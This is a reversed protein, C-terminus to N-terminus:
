PSDGSPPSDTAVPPQLEGGAMAAELFATDYDGAVFRPHALVARHLDITTPVGRVVMAALAADMRAIAQTRDAGHAIVKAIMSDYHPSVRDGQALHTDVRIGEGEPLRLTTLPGPTPRFGQAVEEANIRCEIAHGGVPASLLDAPLDQNAAIRLQWEVLDLGTVLETVTHEVQLRTNMEMFWLQGTEDLLMEITGAGRYRLGTVARQVTEFIAARQAPTVVPSPTEEILKQHRRQVSCEREGLVLARQGDALIQLEIHRGREILREMYMRGDGFAGIAEASAEAFAPGVQDLAHVRRMGRGGGGAVAKLLVPLGIREAERRAAAVDALAGDTGPVPAVGLAAMTRRAEAKDAMRRMSASSPGIFTIRAAECMAAFTPNESLFGWGPHVASCRQAEAAAVLAVPDLYARRDGLGVVADAQRLYSLDADADTAVAVVQVGLRKCTRIVRAAVEGRNAVLIRRFVSVECSPSPAAQM